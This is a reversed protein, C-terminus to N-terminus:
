QGGGRTYAYRPEGSGHARQRRQQQKGGNHAYPNSQFEALSKGASQKRRFPQMMPSVFAFTLYGIRIIAIKRKTRNSARLLSLHHHQV